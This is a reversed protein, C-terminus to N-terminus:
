FRLGFLQYELRFLAQLFRMAWYVDVKCLLLFLRTHMRKNKIKGPAAKRYTDALTKLNVEKQKLAKFIFSNILTDCLDQAAPYEERLKVFADITNLIDDLHPNLSAGGENLNYNYLIEPISKIRRSCALVRLIFDLDEGLKLKPNFRLNNRELTEARIINGWVSKNYNGGKIYEEFSVPGFEGLIKMDDRRKSGVYRWSYQLIDLIDSEMLPLCIELCNKELSDDADVFVVYEGSSNDLGLNRASSVGGNEKHFAKIRSDKRAYEDCIEGCNDPSGDDVLLLEWDKLTQAIISDICNGICKEAKYVAVIFSVKPM